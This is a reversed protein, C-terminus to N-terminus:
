RRELVKGELTNYLYLSICFIHLRGMLNSNRVRRRRISYPCWERVKRYIHYLFLLNILVLNHFTSLSM